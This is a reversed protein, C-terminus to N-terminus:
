DISMNMLSDNTEVMGQLGVRKNSAGAGHSNSRETSTKPPPMQGWAKDGNFGPSHQLVPSSQVSMGPSVARRKFSSPDLDDDRGRKRNNAKRAAEGATPANCALPTSSRSRSESETQYRGGLIGIGSNSTAQSTSASDMSLDDSLASSSKKALLRPPPTHHRRDFNNWFRLGDSNREAQRSFSDVVIPEDNTVMDDELASELLDHPFTSPRTPSTVSPESDRVQHIVDAERKADNEVPAAEEMLAARIRAFTKTKPLLNSRRTVPRRIVGRPSQTSSTSTTNGSVEKGDSTKADEDGSDSLQLDSTGLSLSERRSQVQQKTLGQQFYNANSHEISKM